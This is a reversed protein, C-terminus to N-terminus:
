TGMHTSVPKLAIVTETRIKREFSITAKTERLDKEQEFFLISWNANTYLGPVLDPEVLVGRDIVELCYKIINLGGPKTWNMFGEVAKTYDEPSIEELFGSCLVLDYQRNESCAKLFDDNDVFVEVGEDKAANLIRRAGTKSFELAHVEYGMKALPIAYRGNGSAIDIARLGLGDKNFERAYRLLTESPAGFHQSANEWFNDWWERSRIVSPKEM